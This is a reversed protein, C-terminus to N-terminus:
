WKMRNEPDGSAFATVCRRGGKEAEQGWGEKRAHVLPLKPVGGGGSFAWDQNTTKGGASGRKELRAFLIQRHFRSGTVVGEKWGKSEL